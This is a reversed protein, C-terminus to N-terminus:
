EDKLSQENVGAVPDESPPSAPIPLNSPEHVEDPQASKEEVVESHDVLADYMEHWAVGQDKYSKILDDLAEHFNKM